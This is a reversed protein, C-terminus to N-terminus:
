YSIFYHDFGSNNLSFLVCNLGFLTSCSCCFPGNYLYSCRAKLFSTKTKAIEAGTVLALWSSRIKSQIGEM